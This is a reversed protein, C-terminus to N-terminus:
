KGSAPQIPIVFRYCTWHKDEPGTIPQWNKGDPSRLLQGSPRDSFGILIARGLQLQGSLDISSQYRNLLGAYQYGGSAQYFMMQRLIMPVDFSQRDYPSSVAVYQKKLEDYEVRNRTLRSLLVERDKWRPALDVTQGPEIRDLPYVWRDYALWCDTLPVDLESTLEGTLVDDENLSIDASLGAPEPSSWQATLSRTSWVHIPMDLLRELDTSFDYPEDTLPPNTTKPDMGGLASGPLGLWSFIVSPEEADAKEGEAQEGEAPAGPLEPRYTLDYADARPSFLNLWTTGRVLGHEEDLVVDVLDVQNLRVQSGKLWSAAAYAGASVLLVIAPFTIWTLEMRKFVNKVLLYDGPGILLIYLSVLGAVVFFPVLVIGDFQDLAGRLQSLLDTLGTSTVQGGSTKSQTADSGAAPMALLKSVFQGRAKWQIFPAQDLDVAVFVVEGLGYPSRVVLPLDAQAADPAEIRGRVDVFRAVPLRLAGGSRGPALPEQTESYAELDNAQPLSTTEAFTGPAFGALPGGEGLVEAAQAAASIVLRGGRQVWQQLAKLRDNTGSLKRYLEPQSTSLVLTHVGEYGYWRTPLEEVSELRAHEITEKEDRRHLRLAEDIGVPPGLSVILEQGSFMAWPLFQGQGEQLSDFRREAFVEEASLDAFEVHLPSEIRGFKVFQMVSITQGPLLQYPRPSTVRSPLGEGDPVTIRLSGTASQSGGKLTVVVPTWKGVQFHGDFGVEVGVIETDKASQALSLDSVLLALAVALLAALHSLICKFEAAPRACRRALCTDRNPISDAPLGM